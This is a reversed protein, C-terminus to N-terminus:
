RQARRRERGALRAVEAALRSPEVPKPLDSHVGALLRALREDNRAASTLAVAPIRGGRDADLSHVKGVVAYSEHETSVSDSVLVDPSWGELAELADAVSAVAQVTAGRQQLITQLLERVDDDRDLVLVRLGDLPPGVAPMRWVPAAGGDRRLLEAPQAPFRATFVAGGGDERNVAEISGGHLEILERILALGVGLGGATRTPSSDAQTFRDFIRPLFEPDIGSGSDRVTLRAEDGHRGAAVEIEGGRPTFKIANAILHWAVQRLRAPDGLVVVPEDPVVLRVRLGKARAAPEVSV